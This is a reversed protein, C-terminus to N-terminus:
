KYKKVNARYLDDWFDRDISNLAEAFVDDIDETNKIKKQLLTSLPHADHIFEHLFLEFSPVDLSDGAIYFSGQLFVTGVGYCTSKFFSTYLMFNMSNLLNRLILEKKTRPAGYNIKLIVMSHQISYWGTAETKCQPPDLHFSFRVWYREIKEHSISCYASIICNKIQGYIDLHHSGNM